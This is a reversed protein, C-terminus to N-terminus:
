TSSRECLAALAWRVTDELSVAGGGAALERRTLALQGEVDSASFCALKEGM